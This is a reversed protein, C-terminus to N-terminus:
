TRVTSQRSNRSYKCYFRAINRFMQHKLAKRHDKQSNVILCCFSIYFDNDLAGKHM